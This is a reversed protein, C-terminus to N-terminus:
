HPLRETWLYKLAFSKVPSCYSKTQGPPVFCGFNSEVACTASCGDGGFLNGDDCYSTSNGTPNVGDGCTDVCNAGSQTYYQVCKCKLTSTELYFHKSTDCVNCM